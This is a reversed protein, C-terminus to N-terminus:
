CATSAGATTCNGRGRCRCILSHAAAPSTPRVPRCRSARYWRCTSSEPFRASRGNSGRPVDSFGSSGVGRYTGTYSPLDVLLELCPAVGLRWRTNTGDIARGGDRESLNIGNESQLSGVPVVLSSNTADPRDTAIEDKATPCSDARADVAGLAAFASLGCIQFIRRSVSVKILPFDRINGYL